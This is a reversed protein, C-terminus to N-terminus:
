VYSEQHYTMQSMEDRSQIQYFTARLREDHEETKSGFVLVDDMLCLVGRLGTLIKIMRKQFHEPASSIRFPMITNLCYRGFPTLFTTLPQFKEALPIQWFGSNSGLKSFVTAGSIQALTEDVKLLLYMYKECFVHM